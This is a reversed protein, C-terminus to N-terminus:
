NYMQYWHHDSFPSDYIYADDTIVNPSRTFIYDIRRSATTKRKNARALSVADAEGLVAYWWSDFAGQNEAYELNFDGAVWVPLNQTLYQNAVVSYEWMQTQRINPPASRATVHASCGTLNFLNSAVCVWGVGTQNTAQNSFSGHSRIAASGRVAVVNGFRGCTGSVSTGWHAEAVYSHLGFYNNWLSLWQTECIENFSVVLPYPNTRAKLSNLVAQAIDPNWGGDPNGKAGWLNMHVVMNAGPKVAPSPIGASAPTAGGAVAVFAVIAVAAVARTRWPCRIM